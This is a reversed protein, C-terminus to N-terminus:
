AGVSLAILCGLLGGYVLEAYRVRCQEPAFKASWYVVGMLTTLLGYPLAYIHFFSLAIFMPYFLLGRLSMAIFCWRIFHQRDQPYGCILTTLQDIVKIETEDRYVLSGTMVNFYKGWGPTLGGWLGLFVITGIVPSVTYMGVACGMYLSVAPRTFIYQFRGSGRLANLVAFLLSFWLLM